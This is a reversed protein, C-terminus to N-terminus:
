VNNLLECLRIIKKKELDPYNGIYWGFHHIHEVEPYNEWENEKVIGKLYPQRM